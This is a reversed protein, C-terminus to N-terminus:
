NQSLNAGFPWFFPPRAPFPLWGPPSTTLIASQALLELAQGTV